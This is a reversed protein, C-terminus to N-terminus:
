PKPFYQSVPFSYYKLKRGGKSKKENVVEKKSFTANNSSSLMGQFLKDQPM